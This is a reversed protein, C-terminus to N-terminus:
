CAALSSAHVTYAGSSGSATTVSILNTVGLNVGHWSTVHITGAWWGTEVPGTWVLSHTDSWSDISAGLSQPVPSNAVVMGRVYTGFAGANNLCAYGKYGVAQGSVPQYTGTTVLTWGGAHALHSKHYNQYGFFGAVGIVAVIGIAVVIEVLSFGSQNLKLKSLQKM